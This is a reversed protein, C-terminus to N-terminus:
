AKFSLGQNQLATRLKPLSAPGMGHFQLIEKESYKSLEQLSLIGHHELARRAPASLLSLFGSDPKIEKECIPCTPCGSSKYYQHGKLCTRLTKNLDTM